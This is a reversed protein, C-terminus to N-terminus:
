GSKAFLDKVVKSKSLYIIWVVSSCVSAGAMILSRNLANILEPSNNATLIFLRYAVVSMALTLIIEVALYIRALMPFVSKRTLLCFIVVVTMLVSFAYRATYLKEGNAAINGILSFLAMIFGFGSIMLFVLLWIGIGGLSDLATRRAQKKKEEAQTVARERRSEQIKLLKERQKRTYPM